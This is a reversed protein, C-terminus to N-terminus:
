CPPHSLGPVRPSKVDVLPKLGSWLSLVYVRVTFGLELAPSM